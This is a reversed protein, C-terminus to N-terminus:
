HTRCSSYLREILFLYYYYTTVSSKWAQVAYSPTAKDIFRYNDIITISITILISIVGILMSKLCFEVEEVIIIQAMVIKWKGFVKIAM